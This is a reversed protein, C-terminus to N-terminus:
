FIHPEVKPIVPPITALQFVKLLTKKLIIVFLSTTIVSSKRTKYMSRMLGSNQENFAVYPPFYVYLLVLVLDYLKVSMM